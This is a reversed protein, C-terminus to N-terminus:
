KSRSKHVDGSVFSWAGEVIAAQWQAVPSARGWKHTASHLLVGDQLSKSPGTELVIQGM